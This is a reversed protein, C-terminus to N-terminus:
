WLYGGGGSPSPPQTSQGTAVTRSSGQHPGPEQLPLGGAEHGRDFNQQREIENDAAPWTAPALIPRKLERRQEASLLAVPVMQHASLLIHAACSRGEETEGDNLVAEWCEEGLLQNTVPVGLTAQRGNVQIGRMETLILQVVVKDGAQYKVPGTWPVLARSRHLHRTPWDAPLHGWWLFSMKSPKVQVMTENFAGFDRLRIAFRGTESIGSLVLAVRGNHHKAIELSHVLVVRGAAIPGPTRWQRGPTLGKETSAEKCPDEWWKSTGRQGVPNMILLKTDEWV